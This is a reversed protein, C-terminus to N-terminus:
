VELGVSRMLDLANSKQVVGPRLRYDFVMKGNELHDEFHVNQAAPAMSDAVKSLALDHTTILGVAGRAVLGRVVAEAGIRRDHSNTGHFIEDLLFVLPLSDETLDMIQRLRKIEAYFRSVGEQLSDVIRISAGVALISLRLRRARVPSGALALVSNIGITRLLTSKGSMNSGSVVLLHLPEGLRLDNRTLQGEPILPHGIGEGEFLPGEDALEPFPDDPHEYSFTALAILAEIEGLAELWREVSPGSRSRWSELAFAFQTGWLLLMAVPAFMKNLRLDMLEILRRLRRIQRSASLGGVSLLQQLEILRTSSFSEKELCNLIRSLMGLERDPKDASAIVEEVRSRLWLAFTAEIVLVTLVVSRHIYSGLWGLVVIVSVVALAFAVARVVRSTLTPPSSAWQVLSQPDVEPSIEEDVIALEEILDLKAGLERVAAQRAVVIEKSAPSLLWGALTRAGWPTRTTCLLEFVSGEGFLDLDRAYPHSEELFRLGDDGVGAWRGELRGLGKQYFVVARMARDLSRIVGAHLIMLVLFSVLPLAMWIVSIDRTEWVFWAMVVALLFVALRANSLRGARQKLRAAQVRYANLRSEYQTRADLPNTESM